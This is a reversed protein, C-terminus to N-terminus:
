MLECKEAVSKKCVIEGSVLQIGKVYDEGNIKNILSKVCLEAMREMNVRYTTIRSNDKGSPLFDDIGVVSIDQPVRCGIKELNQILIDAVFDCNCVYADMGEANELINTFAEGKEDRDPIEWSAEFDIRSDRLAKRYGWFRDAISSTADVSGVFGIRRHGQSILYNTMIYAGYYGDSIVTDMMMLPIYTDLFFAPLQTQSAMFHSYGRDAIGLLILGDVKQEQMVKPIYVNKEAESTLLEMIGFHQHRYLAKVVEEHLRGYFSISYGYYQEPIIIGINGTKEATGLKQVAGSTYGMDIAIRKIKDRLEANVGPKDTLAKHVAVSSVGVMAAIDALTVGKAM